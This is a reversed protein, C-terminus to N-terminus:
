TPLLIRFAEVLAFESHNGNERAIREMEQDNELTHRGQTRHHHLARLKTEWVSSVDIFFNPHSSMILYMIHPKHPKLGEKLHEPYFLPGPACVYASQFAALGVATHDPYISCSDQGGDGPYPDHTVISQPRVERILRVLKDRLDPVVFSLDGDDYRLFRVDRVGLIASAAVQEEERLKALEEMTIEPDGTGRNGSSCLVCTVQKGASVLQTVTGGGHVEIDDPHATIVMIPDPIDKISNM